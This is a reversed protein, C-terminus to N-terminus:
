KHRPTYSQRGSQSLEEQTPFEKEAKLDLNPIPVPIGFDLKRAALSGFKVSSTIEQHISPPPGLEAYSLIVFGGPKKEHTSLRLSIWYAGIIVCHAILSIVLGRILYQGYRKKLEIAGYPEGPNAAPPSQGGAPEAKNVHEVEKVNRRKM